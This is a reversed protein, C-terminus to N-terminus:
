SEIHQFSRFASLMSNQPVYQNFNSKSFLCFNWIIEPFLPVTCYRLHAGIVFLGGFTFPDCFISSGLHDGNENAQHQFSKDAESM